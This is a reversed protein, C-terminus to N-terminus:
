LSQYKMDMQQILNEDQFRFKQHNFSEKIRLQQENMDRQFDFTQKQKKEQSNLKFDLNRQNVKMKLDSLSQKM